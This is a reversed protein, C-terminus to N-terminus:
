RDPGAEAVAKCYGVYRREGTTTRLPGTICVIRKYGEELLHNVAQYAGVVNDVTVTDAYEAPLTRDALVVPIRARVM